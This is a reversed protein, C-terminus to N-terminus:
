KRPQDVRADIAHKRKVAFAPKEGPVPRHLADRAEAGILYQTLAYHIDKREQALWAAIRAERSGEFSLFEYRFIM